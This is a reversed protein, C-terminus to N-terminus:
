RGGGRPGAGAEPRLPPREPLDVGQDRAREKMQEHTQERLREREEESEAARMQERHRAREQETMMQRGPGQGAMGPGPAGVAPAGAARAALRNRIELRHQERFAERETESQMAQLRARYQTREQESMLRAGYIPEEVGRERARVRMQERSQEQLKQREEDNAAARLRERLQTQEQQTMLEEGYIPEDTEEASAVPAWQGAGAIAACGAVAAFALRKMAIM